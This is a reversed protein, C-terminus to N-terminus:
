PYVKCVYKMKKKLVDYVQCPLIVVMSPWIKWVGTFQFNLKFLLDVKVSM